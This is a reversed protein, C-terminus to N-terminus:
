RERVLQELSEIEDIPGGDDWQNRALEAFARARRVEGRLVSRGADDMQPPLVVFDHVSASTKGPTSM